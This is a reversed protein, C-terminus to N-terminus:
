AAGLSEALVRELEKADVNYHVCIAALRRDIEDLPDEGNWYWVRLRKPVPVSLLPHGAVM